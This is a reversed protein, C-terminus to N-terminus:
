ASPALRDLGDELMMRGTRRHHDSGWDFRAADLRFGVEAAAVADLVRPGAEIVEPGIGNGGMAALKLVRM